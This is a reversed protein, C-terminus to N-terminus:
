APDGWVKIRQQVDGGFPIAAENGSGDNIVGIGPNSAPLRYAVTMSTESLLYVAVNRM